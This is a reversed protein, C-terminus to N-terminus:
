IKNYAVKQYSLHWYANCDKKESFLQDFVLPPFLPDQSFYHVTQLTRFKNASVLCVIKASPRRGEIIDKVKDDVIAVEIKHTQTKLLKKLPIPEERLLAETVPVQISDLSLNLQLLLLHELIFHIQALRGLTQEIEPQNFRSNQFGIDEEVSQSDTSRLFTKRAQSQPAAANHLSKRVNMTADLRPLGTKKFNAKLASAGCIQSEVFIFEYDRMIKEVGIELLLELPQSGTLHPIAIRRESIDRILEGLKTTAPPM